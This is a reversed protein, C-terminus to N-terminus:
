FDFRSTLTEQIAHQWIEPFNFLLSVMSRKGQFLSGIKAKMSPLCLDAMLLAIRCSQLYNNWAGKSYQERREWIIPRPSLVIIIYYQIMIKVCSQWRPQLCTKPHQWWQHLCPMAWNNIWYENIVQIFLSSPPHFAVQVHIGFVFYHPTRTLVLHIVHWQVNVSLCIYGQKM